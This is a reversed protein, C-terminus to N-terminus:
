WGWPGLIGWNMSADRNAQAAALREDAIQKQLSLAQYKQYSQQDGV